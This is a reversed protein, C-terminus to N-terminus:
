SQSKVSLIEYAFEVFEFFSMVSVGLFLSLLGGITAILTLITSGSVATEVSETYSLSEYYINIRAFANRATKVDLRKNDVFDERLGASKNILEFFYDGVLLTSSLSTRYLTRNCPMPCAKYCSEKFYNTSFMRTVNAACTSLTINTNCAPLHPFFSFKDNSTCNCKDVDTQTRCLEFCFDQTYEFNANLIMRSLKTDIEDLCQSYPQPLIREVYREMYINTNYGSPVELGYNTNLSAHQSSIKIIGGVYTNANPNLKEYFDVYILMTLGYDM